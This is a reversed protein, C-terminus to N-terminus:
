AWRWHLRLQDPEIVAEDICIMDAYRWPGLKKAFLPQLAPIDELHIDVHNEHVHWWPKPPAIRQVHNAGKVRAYLTLMLDGVFRGGMTTSDSRLEEDFDLRLIRNPWDIHAIHFTLKLVVSIGTRVFIEAVGSQDNLTLQRLELRDDDVLPKVQQFILPLPVFVQRGHWRPFLGSAQQNKMQRYRDFLNM